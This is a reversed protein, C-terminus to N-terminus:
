CFSPREPTAFKPPQTLQSLFNEDVAISISRTAKEFTRKGILKLKIDSARHSARM